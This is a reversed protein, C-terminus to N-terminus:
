GNPPADAQPIRYGVELAARITVEEPSVNIPEEAPPRQETWERITAPRCSGPIPSTLSAIKTSAVEHHPGTLKLCSPM